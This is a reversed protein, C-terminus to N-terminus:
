ARPAPLDTAEGGLSLDTEAEVATFAKAMRLQSDHISVFSASEPGPAAPGRAAARSDRIAADWLALGVLFVYHLGMSVMTRTELPVFAFLM